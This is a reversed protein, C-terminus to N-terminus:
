LTLYDAYCYDSLDTAVEWWSFDSFPTCLYINNVYVSYLLMYIFCVFIQALNWSFFLNSQIGQLMLVSFIMKAGIKSKNPEFKPWLSQMFFFTRNLTLPKYLIPGRHLTTGSAWLLMEYSLFNPFQPLTM